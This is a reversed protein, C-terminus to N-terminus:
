VAERRRPPTAKLTIHVLDDLPYDPFTNRLRGIFEPGPSGHGNLVRNLTVVHLGMREAIQAQTTLGAEKCLKDFLHRNLQFEYAM